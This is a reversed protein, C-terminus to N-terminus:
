KVRYVVLGPLGQLYTLLDIDVVRRVSSRSSAHRLLVKDNEKIILGTHSVDLGDHKSYIGVYDGTQLASLVGRDMTNTPIYSMERRIVSIGPLWHTGDSKLNLQKVVDQARGQGVASTVDGIVAADGAVWDSFFHKRNEYAVKGDRYRVQKLQEPFDALDAASRLAEVVDLFTFCDFGALNIVLQEATQPDGILTDAVYPTDTFHRSLAAIRDGPADIQRAMTIIQALATQSWRGLNLPNRDASLAVGSMLCFILLTSQLIKFVM